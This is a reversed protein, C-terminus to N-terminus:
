TLCLALKFSYNANRGDFRSAKRYADIAALHNNEAEANMGIRYQAEAAQPDSKSEGAGIMTDLVNQTV